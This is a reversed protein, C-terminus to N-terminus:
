SLLKMLKLITPRSYSIGRAKLENVYDVSSVYLESSSKIDSMIGLAIRRKRQYVTEGPHKSKRHYHAFAVQCIGLHLCIIRASCADIVIEADALKIYERQLETKM